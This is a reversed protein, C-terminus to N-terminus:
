CIQWRSYKPPMFSSTCPSSYLHRLYKMIRVMYLAALQMLVEAIFGTLFANMWPRDLEKSVLTSTSHGYKDMEEVVAIREYSQQGKLLKMTDLPKQVEKAQRGALFGLIIWSLRPRAMLFLMLEWVKFTALYGPSHQIMAAVIANALLNLGVPFIWM